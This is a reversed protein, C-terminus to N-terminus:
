GTCLSALSDAVEELQADSTKERVEGEDNKTAIQPFQLDSLYMVGLFPTNPSEHELWNTAVKVVDGSPRYYHGPSIDMTDDFIEFGQALGSKRWIPAGGSVFLTHYGKGLAGEALTHMRAPLFEAGNHHVGHDFPYLGTMLSSMTAQSMTSPAFAHSFRVSEECFPKLDKIIRENTADSDCSISEFSLGEVAVVLVSPQTKQQFDCGIASLSFILIVVRIRLM